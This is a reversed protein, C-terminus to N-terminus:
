TLHEWHTKQFPERFNSPEIVSHRDAASPASFHSDAAPARFSQAPRIEDGLVRMGPTQTDDFQGSLVAWIFGGLFLLAMGLSALILILIVNM